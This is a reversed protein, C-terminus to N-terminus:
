KNGYLLREVEIQDHGINMTTDSTGLPIPEEQETNPNVTTYPKDIPYSYRSIAYTHILAVVVGATVAHTVGHAYYAYLVFGLSVIRGMMTDAADYFGDASKLFSYLLILAVFTEVGSRIPIQSLM